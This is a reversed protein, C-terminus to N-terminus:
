TLLSCHSLWNINQRNRIQSWNVNRVCLYSHLHHQSYALEVRRHLCSNIIGIVQHCKALNHSISKKGVRLSYIFTGVVEASNICSVSLLSDYSINRHFNNPGVWFILIVNLLFEAKAELIHTKIWHNIQHHTKIKPKLYMVSEVNINEVILIIKTILYQTKRKQLFRHAIVLKSTVINPPSYKYIIYERIMKFYVVHWFFHRVYRFLINRFM